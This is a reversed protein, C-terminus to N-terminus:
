PENIILAIRGALLDGPSESPGLGVLDVQFASNHPRLV